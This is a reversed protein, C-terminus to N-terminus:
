DISILASLIIPLLIQDVDNLLNRRVNRDDLTQKRIFAYAKVLQSKVTHISIGLHNAIQQNSLGQKGSLLIIKKREPPLQDIAKFVLFKLMERDIANEEEDSKECTDLGFQNIRKEGTNRSRIFSICRNKVAQSAYAEFTGKVSNQRKEWYHIFFEQVIDNAIDEDKVYGMAIM